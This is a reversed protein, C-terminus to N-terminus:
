YSHRWVSSQHSPVGYQTAVENITQFERIAEISMKSKFEASYIKRQASM